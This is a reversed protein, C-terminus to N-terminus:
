SASDDSGTSQAPDSSHQIEVAVVDRRAQELYWNTVQSLDLRQRTITLKPADTEWIVRGDPAVIMSPCKTAPQANNAALVFRQNEAARSILHSRWVPAADADGTRRRPEGRGTRILSPDSRLGFLALRLKM